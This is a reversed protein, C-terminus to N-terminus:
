KSNGDGNWCLRFCTHCCRNGCFRAELKGGGMVLSSLVLPNMNKVNCADWASIDGSFIREMSDHTVYQWKTFIRDSWIREMRTNGNFVYASPFMSDM